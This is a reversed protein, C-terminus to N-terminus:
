VTNICTLHGDYQNGCLNVLNGVEETAKFFAVEEENGSFMKARLISGSRPNSSTGTQMAFLHAEEQATLNKYIKCFITTNVGEILERAM